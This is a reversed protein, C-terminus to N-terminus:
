DGFINKATEELRSSAIDDLHTQRLIARCPPRTTEPEHRERRTCLRVRRTLREIPRKLSALRDRHSRELGFRGTTLRSTGAKTTGTTATTRTNVSSHSTAAAAEAARGSGDARGIAREVYAVQRVVRTNLLNLCHDARGTCSRDHTHVQGHIGVPALAAEPKDRHCAGFRCFIGDFPKTTDVNTAPAEDHVECVGFAFARRTFFAARAAIATATAGANAAAAPVAASSTRRTRVITGRSSSSSRLSTREVITTTTTAVFITRRCTGTASATAAASAATAVVLIPIGTRAAFVIPILSGLKDWNLEGQGGRWRRQLPPALRMTRSIRVNADTNTLFFTRPDTRQISMSAAREGEM